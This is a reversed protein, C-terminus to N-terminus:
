SQKDLFAYDFKLLTSFYSFEENTMLHIEDKLKKITVLDKTELDKIMATLAEIFGKKSKTGFLENEVLNKRDTKTGSNKYM